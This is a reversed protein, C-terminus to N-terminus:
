YRFRDDVKFDFAIVDALGGALEKVIMQKVPEHAPHELYADRSEVDTFTVIFAHTFGKHLGEPSEYPGACIDIIGPIKEQLDDLAEFIAAIAERTTQPPFKLLVIHKCQSM